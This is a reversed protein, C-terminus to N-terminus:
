VVSCRGVAVPHMDVAKNVKGVAVSRRGVAAPHRGVAADVLNKIKQKQLPPLTTTGHWAIGVIM